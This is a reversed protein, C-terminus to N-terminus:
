ERPAAAAREGDADYRPKLCRSFPRSSVAYPVTTVNVFPLNSQHACWWAFESTYTASSRARRAGDRLARLMACASRVGARQRGQGAGSSNRGQKRQAFFACASSRWLRAASM